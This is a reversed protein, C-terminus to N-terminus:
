ADGYSGILLWASGIWKAAVADGSEVTVATATTAGTRLAGSLTVTGTGINDIEVEQKNTGNPLVITIASASEAVVLKGLHAQSLTISGQVTQYDGNTAAIEKWDYETKGTDLAGLYSGAVFDGTGANTVLEGSVRDYLGVTGSADICPVYDRVITGTDIIQCAYLKASAYSSVSSGTNQALLYLPYTVTGATNTVSYTNDIACTTPTKLVVHRDTASVSTPFDANDGGNSRFVSTSGYWRFSFQGTVAFLARNGTGPDVLQFDMAVGTNNNPVYETNIYQTGTSQIYELQTYQSVEGKCYWLKKTATNFYFQGPAGVTTGDPDTAGSLIEGGGGDEGDKGDLVDFTKAGTKDTITVRHGGDIATVTATPSYGDDGPDGQRGNLIDVTKTSEADTITLRNGGSIASVAVTPSVGDDGDKGPDGQKGQVNASPISPMDAKSPTWSLVGGNVSPTYYGGDEGPTGGGSGGGDKGDKVDFYKTGNKDTITVRHGGTIPAVAITPSIGDEGPAGPEGNLLDFSKTGNRDTISVRYGDATQVVNVTPSIGDNGPDGQKGDVVDFTQTGNADTITVRHGGETETIGVTPSVGDDGKGGDFLDFTFVGNAATITVRHGNEIETVEVTPSVGDEGPLGIGPPGVNFGPQYTAPKQTPQGVYEPNWNGTGNAKYKPNWAM